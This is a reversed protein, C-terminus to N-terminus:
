QNAPSATSRRARWYAFPGGSMGILEAVIRPLNSSNSSSSNSSNVRVADADRKSWARSLRRTGEPIRRLLARRTEPDILQKTLFATFGLGYSYLQSQLERDGSRHVHWVIASPEFAIARKSYLTRVFADLDEGGRSHSGAGLAQDFGGIQQMMTRDVALSAGTGFIGPSFPYLANDGQRADLDYVRPAFSNSWSMRGDFYRQAISDLRAPPVLGTVCGVLPDRGFGRAIGDLWEPDVFVDDDTFAVHDHLAEEMARNRARSLGATPERCYRFRGDTAAFMEVVRRTRDDSPANDVVVVEFDRYRLAGLSSLCGSLEESRDRTCIAVSIPTPAPDGALAGCRDWGGLGEPSLGGSVDLGDATAHAAVRDGLGEEVARRLAAPAFAAPDESAPMTVFGLPQHHLRVLLRSAGGPYTGGGPVPAARLGDALEVQGVWIGGPDSAEPTM